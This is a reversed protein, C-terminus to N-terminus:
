DRLPVSSRAASGQEFLAHLQHGLCLLGRKENAIEGGILEHECAVHAVRVIL